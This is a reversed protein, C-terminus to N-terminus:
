NSFFSVDVKTAHASGGETIDPVSSLHSFYTTKFLTVQSDHISTPVLRWFTLTSTDLPFLLNLNQDSDEALRM